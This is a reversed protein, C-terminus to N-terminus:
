SRASRPWASLCTLAASRSGASCLPTTLTMPARMVANWRRSRRMWSLKPPPLAPGGPWTSPPRSAPGSMRSKPWGSLQRTAPARTVSGADPELDGALIKLLTSKGIGNPAIIGTRDGAGISVSVGDLVVLSGFSVSVNSAILRSM